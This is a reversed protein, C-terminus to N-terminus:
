HTGQYHRYQAVKDSVDTWPQKDPAFRARLYHALSIVQQDNLSDKFGPMMGQGPLDLSNEQVGYLITQIVNDPLDSHLNTNGALETGAQTWLHLGSDDLGDTHCAACSGNFIRSGESLRLQLEAEASLRPTVTSEPTAEPKNFSAVYHAIARVDQEPLKGLGKVVPAMPGSAVGHNKASGTKLYDFLAQETWPVPSKSLHNLPPAEWGDVMAGSFYAQGGKEAGSLNRPTHCASCHGLGEALYAGRNWLPSQSTDPQFPKPDHYLANWGAMLPRLNFPFSMEAAPSEAKVAPRSMLYAYLAQMDADSIKAFSTYPFAPYLQRGDRSVGHRMAREFASFSWNGIGTKEDPTINTSYVVGFPTVFPRGGSNSEGEQWTHCVACDGAEAVLRGREITAASYLDPAPRAVPPIASKLPWAMYALGAMSLAAASVWKKLPTSGKTKDKDGKIASANLAERVREPSFPPERLRVGCANFIANSVAAVAPDALGPACNLSSTIPQVAGGSGELIPGTEQSYSTVSEVAWQSYGDHTELLPQRASLLDRQLIQRLHEQDPAPGSDQGIILRDLRVEGTFKDLCIDVVWASRTGSDTASSEPNERSLIKSYAFGRGNATDAKGTEKLGYHQEDSLWGSQRIVADVLELGRDDTIHKKRLEAPDLQLEQSLEDMWCERAFTNQNRELDAVKYGVGKEVPSYSLQRNFRYPTIDAEIDPSSSDTSVLSTGHVLLYALVPATDSAQHSRQVVTDINDTSSSTCAGLDIQQALGLADCVDQYDPSLLVAVPKGAARSLLMADAAADDNCDRGLWLNGSPSNIQVQGAPLGALAALEHRLVEPALSNVQVEIQDEDVAAIVWEPSGGWRFRNPWRYSQKFDSSETMAEGAPVAPLEAAEWTLQLQGAAVVARNYDSAVVGVFNGLRVVKVVGPMKETSTTDIDTLRSSIFCGDVMQYDPPRVVVGFLLGEFDARDPLKLAASVDGTM